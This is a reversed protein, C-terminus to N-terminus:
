ENEIKMVQDWTMAEVVQISGLAMHTETGDHSYLTVHIENILTQVHLFILTSSGNLFIM